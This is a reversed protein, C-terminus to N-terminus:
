KNNEEQVLDNVLEKFLYYYTSTSYKIGHTGYKNTLKEIINLKVGEINSIKDFFSYGERKKFMVLAERIKYTGYFSFPIYKSKIWDWIDNPNTSDPSEIHCMNCLLVYNSPTDKGGLSHPIIHCRELKSKKESKSYKNDGCAWCHTEAESWDFNLETECVKNPNNVWYSVIKKVSTKNTRGKRGTIVQKNNDENKLNKLYEADIIELNEVRNDTKVKNKHKLVTKDVGIKYNIFTMAVLDHIKFTKTEGKKSLGITYYGTGLLKPKMVEGNKTKLSKVNGIDSIQYDGEYGDIDKYIEGRM